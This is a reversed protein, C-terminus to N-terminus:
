YRHAGVDNVIVYQFYKKSHWIRRIYHVAGTMVEIEPRAGVIAAKRRAVHYQCSRKRANEYPEM